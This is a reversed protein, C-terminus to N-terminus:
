IEVSIKKFSEKSCILIKRFHNLREHHNNIGISISLVRFVIILIIELFSFTSATGVSPQLLTSEGQNSEM